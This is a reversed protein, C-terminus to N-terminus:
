YLVVSLLFILCEFVLLALLIYDFVEVINGEICDAGLIIKIQIGQYISGYSNEDVNKQKGIASHQLPGQYTPSPVTASSLEEKM